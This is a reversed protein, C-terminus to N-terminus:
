AAGRGEAIIDLIELFGRPGRRYHLVGPPVGNPEKGVSIFLGGRTSKPQMMLSDSGIFGGVLGFEDGLFIIDRLKLGRDPVIHKMVYEVSHSKDTLGFELHKVDSTLCMDKLGKGRALEFLKDTAWKIGGAIGAAHLMAQVEALADGIEAKEVERGPLLDVKRRNMRDWVIEARVGKSALITQMETAIEDMIRNERDTAVRRYIPYARGREDFGYVESGRNCCVIIGERLDKRIRSVFQKWVNGLHTGTVVVFVFGDELLRETKGKLRGIPTYRNPVATGDWDYIMMEFRRGRIPDLRSPHASNGPLIEMERSRGPRALVDKGQVRIRVPSPASREVVIRACTQEIDFELRAGHFRAGFRLRRWHDPLDPNLEIHDKCVSLGGFGFVLSQWGGGLAAAHLGDNSAGRNAADICAAKQLFGYAQDRYGARLAFLVHVGPSLSSGHLTRPVYYDYHRRFSEQDALEPLLYLALMVDAQKIAQIENMRSWDVERGLIDELDFFGDSEEFMARRDDYPIRIHEAVDRWHALEETTIELESLLAQVRAVERFRELLELAKLINWRALANTYFSNNVCDHCENPPIVENICYQYGGDPLDERKARFAWYRATEFILQFGKERLFREDGTSIYHRWAAFAIDAIVHIERDGTWCRVLKGEGIPLWKPTTEIGTGASEWPFKAGKGGEEASNIRAQPIRNFRYDLLKEAIQPFQTSFFPLMYIETDWFVHGNYGPGSMCKAAISADLDLDVNARSAAQLLHFVFFRAASQAFADGEVTVGAERWLSAWAAEHERELARYRPLASVESVAEALPDSSRVSDHIAVLKEITYTQGDQAAFEIELGGAAIERGNLYARTVASEAIVHGEERTRVAVSMLAEAVDRSLLDTQTIRDEYLAGTDLDATIKIRGSYNEPTVAVSIACVHPRAMSVFRRFVLKTIRGSKSQWRVERRLVGTRFAISRRHELVRGGSLSFRETGDNFRLCLWNPAPALRSVKHEQAPTDFIGAILTLPASGDGLSSEEFSGRTGLYGNGQMMVSEFYRFTKPDLNESRIGWPHLHKIDGEIAM